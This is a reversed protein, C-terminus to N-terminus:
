NEPIEQLHIVQSVPFMYEVPWCGQISDKDVTVSLVHIEWTKNEPKKGALSLCLYLCFAVFIIMDGNQAWFLWM